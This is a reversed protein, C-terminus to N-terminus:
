SSAKTLTNRVPCPAPTIFLRWTTKATARRKLLLEGLAVDALSHSALQQHLAAVGEVCHESMVLRHQQLQAGIIGNHESKPVFSATRTSM